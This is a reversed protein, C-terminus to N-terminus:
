QRRDGHGPRCAEGRHRVELHGASTDPRGPLRRGHLWGVPDADRAGPAQRGTTGASRTNGRRLRRPEGGARRVAGRRGGGRVVRHAPLDGGPRLRPAAPKPRAPVRTGAQPVLTGAHKRSARVAGHEDGTVRLWLGSRVLLLLTNRSGMAVILDERIAPYPGIDKAPTPSEAM